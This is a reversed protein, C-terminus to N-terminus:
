KLNQSDVAYLALSLAQPDFPHYVAFSGTGSIDAWYEPTRTLRFWTIGPRIPLASPPRYELEIGAGSVASHLIAGIQGASAVKMLRPLRERVQAEPLTTSVALFFESRMVEPGPAQGLYVGDPRRQLPIEICREQIAAGILSMARAFMPEFVAGLDLYNFKPLTTPDGDAALTCLQGILQGLVLYAQEPHATPSDVFHSITPIFTNLTGLLWFKAIDGADLEIAGAQRQRRSEAVARQRATMATLLARFGKTLYPSARLQLVPAVYTERVTVAGSAARGLQAIRITDFGGRHEDGFLLMLNPRAVDVAQESGGTNIDRVLEQARAFRAPATSTADLRVSPMGEAERALAVHVDLVSMQPTFVGDFPRPAITERQGDGVLVATGGPFVASLRAVRLQGAAIAREDIQLDDVGWAFALAARLREELLGEHYRDLQQFHHQTIFLGETWVPKRSM